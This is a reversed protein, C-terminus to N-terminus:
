GLLWDCVLVDKISNRIKLHFKLNKHRVKQFRVGQSGRERARERESERESEREREDEIM